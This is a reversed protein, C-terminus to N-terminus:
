GGAENSFELISKVDVIHFLADSLDLGKAGQWSFAFTLPSSRVKVRM